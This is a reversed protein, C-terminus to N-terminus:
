WQVAFLAARAPLASIGFTTPDSMTSPRATAVSVFGANVDDGMTGRLQFPVAAQSGWLAYCHAGAPIDVAVEILKRGTSNVVGAVGTYGALSLDPAVVLDASLATAIAFEAWTITSGATVVNCALTVLQIDDPAQGLYRAATEGSGSNTVQSGDGYLTGPPTFFGRPYPSLEPRTDRGYRILDDIVRGREAPTVAGTRERVFRAIDIEGRRM